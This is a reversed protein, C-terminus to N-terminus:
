SAVSLPLLGAAPDYSVLCHSREQGNRMINQTTLTTLTAKHVSSASNDQNLLVHKKPDGSIAYTRFALRHAPRENTGLSLSLSLGWETFSAMIVAFISECVM